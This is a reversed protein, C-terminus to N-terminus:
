VTRARGSEQPTGDAGKPQYCGAALFGAAGLAGLLLGEHIVEPFCFLYDASLGCTVM